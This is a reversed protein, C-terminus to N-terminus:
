AVPIVYVFYGDRGQIFKAQVWVKYDTALDAVPVDADPARSKPWLTSVRPYWVDEIRVSLVTFKDTIAPDATATFGSVVWSHWGKWVLLGAPRQTIRIQKAVTHVADVMKLKAGVQYNGYGLSSLGGAWGDPDAGGRDSGGLSVALGFLKAQTDYSTDPEASMMNMSTQMAAPVCWLDNFESVFDGERYLDMSFIGPSGSPMASPTVSLVQASASASPAVSSTAPPLTLVPERTGNTRAWPTTQPEGGISSHSLAQAGAFLTGATLAALLIAMVVVQGTPRSGAPSARHNAGQVGGWRDRVIARSWGSAGGIRAMRPQLFFALVTLQAVRCAVYGIPIAALGAPTSLIMTTLVGTVFGVAAAVTPEVTNHTAFIARAFLEVLSEFPVSIALIMLVMTTRAVDTEDFAGGSLLIRIAFGGFLLLGVSGCTSFFAINALNTKFIRKFVRKDGAASAASLAPFAATAFALGVVSEGVSQFNRAFNFSTASGPALTSALSGFYILMLTGMPQSIMKPLSLRVFEGLGKTRLSLSLQPRFSTRYIGVLRVGLHGLAGLLFGIAAGYIGFPGSLLMAGAVIGANYAFDGLGYSVFRREAVLVEGLVFSAAFVIQGLAMVRLLGIYLERQSGVYGPAVFSATQPAFIIVLAMAAAMVIMSGTLITRAFDRATAEAEGKLGVFIPLFPGVVGGVVLFELVLQPLFLATFFADLEPGAGFTHALVKDRLVAMGANIVFLLGLIVAGRPLSARVLGKARDALSGSDVEAEDQYLAAEAASLRSLRRGRPTEDSWPLRRKEM